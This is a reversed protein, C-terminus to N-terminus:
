VVFADMAQADPLGLLAEITRATQLLAADHASAACLQLGVPLDSGLHHIPLSIGCQNFLNAPRTNQTALRNWAAVDDVNKYDVIPSPVVPVTPAIWVDFGRSRERLLRELVRRRAVMHVYEDAPLDLAAALRAAAVPDIRESQQRLRERGLYALLDAPVLCRFVADIEGAEPVDIEIISAGAQRLRRLAEAFCSAVASDLHDMFHRVPWALKLSAVAPPPSLSRDALAAEVWAADHASRAFIGVSDM